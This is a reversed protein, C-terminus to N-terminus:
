PVPVHHGIHSAACPAPAVSVHRRFIRWCFLRSSYMCVDVCQFWLILYDTTRRHGPAEHKDIAQRNELYVFANEVGAFCHTKPSYVLM